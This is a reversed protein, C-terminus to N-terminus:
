DARLSPCFPGPCQAPQKKPKPHPMVRAKVAFRTSVSVAVPDTASAPSAAMAAWCAAALLFILHKCPYNTM